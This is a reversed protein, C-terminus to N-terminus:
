WGRGVGRPRKVDRRFESEVEDGCGVDVVSALGLELDLNVVVDKGVEM